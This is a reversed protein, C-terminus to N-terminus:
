VIRGNQRKVPLILAYFDNIISKCFHPTEPKAGSVEAFDTMNLLELNDVKLRIEVENDHLVIADIIAKLYHHRQELSLMEWGAADFNSAADLSQQMERLVAGSSAQAQEVAAIQQQTQTLEQKLEAYRTKFDAIEQEESEEFLTLLRSM